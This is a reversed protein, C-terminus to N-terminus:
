IGLREREIRSLKRGWQIDTIHLGDATCQITPTTGRALCRAYRLRLYNKVASESIGGVQEVTVTLETPYGDEVPVDTPTPHLKAELKDLLAGAVLMETNGMSFPVEEETVEVTMDGDLDIVQRISPIVMYYNGVVDTVQDILGCELLQVAIAVWRMVPKGGYARGFAEGALNDELTGLGSNFHMGVLYGGQKVVNIKGEKVYKLVEELTGEFTIPSVAEELNIAQTPAVELGLRQALRNQM